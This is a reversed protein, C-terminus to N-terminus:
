VLGCPSQALAARGASYIAVKTLLLAPARLTRAKCGPVKGNTEEHRPREKLSLSITEDMWQSRQAASSREAAVAIRDERTVGLDRVRAAQAPGVWGTM